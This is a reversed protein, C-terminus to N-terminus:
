TQAAMGLWSAGARACPGSGGAGGHRRSESKLRAGTAASELIGVRRGARGRREADARGTM